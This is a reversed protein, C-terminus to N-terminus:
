YPKLQVTDSDNITDLQKKFSWVEYVDCIKYPEQGIFGHKEILFKFNSPFRRFVDAIILTGSIKLQKNAWNIHRTIDNEFLSLCYLVVNTSANQLQAVNNSAMDEVHAKFTVKPDAPQLNELELISKHLDIGLVRVHLDFDSSNARFIRVIGHLGCGCDIISFDPDRAKQVLSMPKYLDRDYISKSLSKIAEHQSILDHYKEFLNDTQLAKKLKDVKTDIMEDPNDVIKCLDTTIKKLESTIITTREPTMTVQSESLVKSFSAHESYLIDLMSLIAGTKGIQPEADLVITYSSLKSFSKANKEPHSTTAAQTKTLLGHLRFFEIDEFMLRGVEGGSQQTEDFVSVLVLAKPKHHGCCRGIDQIFTSAFGRMDAADGNYRSRVDFAMCSSPLREGRGLKRNVLIFCPLNVLRSVDVDSDSVQDDLRLHRRAKSSLQKVIPDSGQILQIVEFPQFEKKIKTSVRRFLELVKNYLQTVHDNLNLRVLIMYNNESYYGTARARSSIEENTNGYLLFQLAKWATKKSTWDM